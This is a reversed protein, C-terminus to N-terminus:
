ERIGREREWQEYVSRKEGGRASLLRRVWGEDDEVYIATDIKVQLEDPERDAFWGADQARDFFLPVSDVTRMRRGYGNAKCFHTLRILANLGHQDVFDAANTRGSRRIHGVGLEQQAWTRWSVVNTIDTQRLM